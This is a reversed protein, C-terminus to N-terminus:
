SLDLDANKLKFFHKKLHLQFVFVLRCELCLDLPAVSWKKGVPPACSCYKLKDYPQHRRRNQFDLTQKSLFRNRPLVYSM